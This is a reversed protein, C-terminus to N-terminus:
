ALGLTANVIYYDGGYPQYNALRDSVGVHWQPDVMFFIAQDVHLQHQIQVALQDQEIGPALEGLQDLLQDTTPSSYGNLNNAAGTRFFQNLFFGPDGTPATHQAYMAIDYDGSMMGERISDVVRTTANIGLESLQSVVVQMIISLDPRSPYTILRLSLQQGDKARVGDAGKVWGAQDLLEAARQKDVTLTETGAFSYYHAFAGTEVSGGKLATVYDSRDLGLDIAERVLPDTLPGATLNPRAFYQYGADISKVEIGDAGELQDAVTPTITFAMDISKSQLALKMADVDQFLRITVDSRKDADPYHPNPELQLSDGAALSVVQYPGSYIFGGASDRKFAVNTWEGLIAQLVKTERETRATITNGDATFTIVGASANALTNKQQIENLSEALATADVDTGDSFKPGPKVTMTWELPGTQTVNEVYRSTPNGQEDLMFISESVGHSTLDWSRKFVDLSDTMSTQGIVIPSDASPSTESVAGGSACSVLVALGALTAILVAFARKLQHLGFGRPRRHSNM